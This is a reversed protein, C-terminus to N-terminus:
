DKPLLTDAVLKSYGVIALQYAGYDNDINM